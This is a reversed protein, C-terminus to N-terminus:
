ANKAAQARSITVFVDELSPEADIAKAHQLGLEALSRDKEVLAHISQGFITAQLVHRNHRLQELL